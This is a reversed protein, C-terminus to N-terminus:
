FPIGPSALPLCDAQWHLLHSLCDPDKSQSSGKSFSIAVWELIRAQLIGRASSSPPSCDMPDCLWVHTFCNLVCAHVSYFSFFIYTWICDNYENIYMSKCWQFLLYQINGYHCQYTGIWLSSLIFTFTVWNHRVRQSQITWPIRWVLVSSHAAKRKELPDEWGLSWVWTEWM